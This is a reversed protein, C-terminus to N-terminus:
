MYEGYPNRPPTPRDSVGEWSPAKLVTGRKQRVLAIENELQAKRFEYDRRLEDLEFQIDRINRM